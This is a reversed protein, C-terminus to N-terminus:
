VAHRQRYAEFLFVAAAIAANLSEAEAEMPLRARVTALEEAQPGAGHAESGVILVSPETWDLHWLSDDGRVDALVCRKGAVLEAIQQWTLDPVIDLALHAGMGARVVKPAYPDVCGATVLVSHVGTAVCTRLMTGLNGPDRIADLLLSLSAERAAALNAPPIPAVALVGQPAETDAMYALVQPTVQWLPEPGKALADVLGQGPPEAAYEATFFVSAFGGRLQHAQAVLRHGELM